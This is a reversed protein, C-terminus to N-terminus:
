GPLNFGLVNLRHNITVVVVDSPTAGPQHRRSHAALGLRHLLRRRAAVGDRAPEERALAPTFVNLM